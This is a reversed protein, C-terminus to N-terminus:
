HKIEIQERVVGANMYKTWLDHFDESCSECVKKKKWIKSWNKPYPASKRFVLIKSARLKMEKGCRECIVITEERKM